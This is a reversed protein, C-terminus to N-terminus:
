IAAYYVLILVLHVFRVQQDVFAAMEPKKLEFRLLM